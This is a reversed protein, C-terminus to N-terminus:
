YKPPVLGCWKVISVLSDAPMFHSLRRNELLVLWHVGSSVGAGAAHALIGSASLGVRLELGRAELGMGDWIRARGWLRNM